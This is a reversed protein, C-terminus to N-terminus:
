GGLRKLLYNRVFDHQENKKIEKLLENKNIEVNYFKCENIGFDYICYSFGKNDRPQGLSGPNIIRTMGAIKYMQYHTHGCFCVGEYNKINIQSDPYWRGYLCNEINGHMIMVKKDMIKFKKLIPLSKLFRLYNEGLSKSYSNGYRNAFEIQKYKDMHIYNWDHNGCVAELNKINILEDIVEETHDFYGVIDGCFIYGEPNYVSTDILMQKLALINGHIDSFIVYKM